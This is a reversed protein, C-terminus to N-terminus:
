VGDRRRAFEAYKDGFEFELAFRVLAEWSFWYQRRLREEVYADGSERRYIKEDIPSLPEQDVSIAARRHRLMLRRFQGNKVIGFHRAEALLDPYNLQGVCNRRPLTRRLINALSAGTLPADAIRQRASRRTSV